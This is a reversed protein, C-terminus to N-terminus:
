SNIKIAAFFKSSGITPIEGWSKAWLIGRVIEPASFQGALHDIVMGGEKRVLKSIKREFGCLQRLNKMFEGCFTEGPSHPM